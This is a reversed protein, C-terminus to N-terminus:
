LTNCSLTRSKTLLSILGNALSTHASILVGCSACAKSVEEVVIAYSLMDLGAGGYEEPVNLGFLGMKRMEDVLQHPYENRHELTAAVPLVEKDVFRRVTSVILERESSSDRM